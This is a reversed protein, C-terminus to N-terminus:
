DHGFDNSNKPQRKKVIRIINSIDDHVPKGDM